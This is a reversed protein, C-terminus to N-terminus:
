WMLDDPVAFQQYADESPPSERAAGIIVAHADRDRIRSALEARVLYYRGEHRVVVIEGRTLQGRIVPNVAVYRIKNGDVFNYRDDGEVPPLRNQDLLQKIQALLSKRNAKEQRQRNLLQDRATKEAQSAKGAGHASTETQKQQKQKVPQRTQQQQRREVEKVQKQSVLGAQLLQDRLSTSM